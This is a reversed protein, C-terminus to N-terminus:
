NKRRTKHTTGGNVQVTASRASSKPNSGQRPAMDRTWMGGSAHGGRGGECVTSAVNGVGQRLRLAKTARDRSGFFEAGVQGGGRGWGSDGYGGCGRESLRARQQVTLFYVTLAFVMSEWGEAGFPPISFFDTFLELLVRPQIQIGDSGKTKFYSESVSRCLAMSVSPSLCVCVRTRQLNWLSECIMLWLTLVYIM